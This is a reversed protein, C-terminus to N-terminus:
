LKGEEKSYPIPKGDSILTKMKPFQHFQVTAQPCLRLFDEKNIYTGTRIQPKTEEIMFDEGRDWDALVLNMHSYERRYAYAPSITIEYLDKYNDSM